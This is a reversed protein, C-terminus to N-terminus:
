AQAKSTAPCPPFRGALRRGTRPRIRRRRTNPQPAHSVPGKEWLRALDDDVLEQCVSFTRRAPHFAPRKPGHGQFGPPLCHRRRTFAPTLVVDPHKPLPVFFWAEGSPPSRSVLVGIHRPRLPGHRFLHLRELFYQLYM